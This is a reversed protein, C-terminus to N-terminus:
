RNPDWIELTQGVFLRIHAEFLITLGSLFNRGFNTLFVLALLTILVPSLLQTIQSIYDGGIILAYFYCLVSSLVLWPMLVYFFISSFLFASYWGEGWLLDLRSILARCLGQSRRVKRSRSIPQNESFQIRPDMISRFGCARSIMALQSDDANIRPNIRNSGIAAMRFCCLSGEFIPTSDIISEGM